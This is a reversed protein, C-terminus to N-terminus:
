QLSYTLYFNRLVPSVAGSTHYKLKVGVYISTLTHSSLDVWSIANTPDITDGGYSEWSSNALSEERFIEFFIGNDTTTGKGYDPTSVFSKIKNFTYGTPATLKFIASNHAQFNAGTSTKDLEVLDLHVERLGYMFMKQNNEIVWKRQRIRVKLKTIALPAFHVRVSHASLAETFYQAPFPTTPATATTSYWINLIDVQGAPSPFLTLLNANDAYLSPVDITVDMTVSSQDSAPDFAVKRLFGEGIRGDAALSTDDPYVTGGVGEDVAAVTLALGGPVYLEQTQPNLSYLRSVSRNYPLMCSGHIPEIRLRRETDIGTYSLGSLDTFSQDYTIDSGLVASRYVERERRSSEADVHAQLRRLESDLQLLRKNFRASVDNLVTAINSHDRIIEDQFSNFDKSSTRGRYPAERKKVSPQFIDSFAM